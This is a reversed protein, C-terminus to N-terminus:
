KSSIRKLSSIYRESIIKYKEFDDWDEVIELFGDWHGSIIDGVKPKELGDLVYLEKELKRLSLNRGIVSKENTKIVEYFLVPCSMAPLLNLNDMVANEFDKGTSKSIRDKIVDLHGGYIYDRVGSSEVLDMMKKQTADIESRPFYSDGKIFNKYLNMHEQKTKIGLNLGCYGSKYASYIFASILKRDSIM